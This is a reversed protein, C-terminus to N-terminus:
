LAIVSIKPKKLHTKYFTTHVHADAALVYRGGGWIMVTKVPLVGSSVRTKNGTHSALYGYLKVADM